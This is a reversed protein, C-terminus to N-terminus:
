EIKVEIVPTHDLCWRAESTGPFIGHIEVQTATKQHPFATPAHRQCTHELVNFAACTGCTPRSM